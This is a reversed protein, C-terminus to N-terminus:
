RWWRMSSGAYKHKVMCGTQQEFPKVWEDQAYGEWVVMNLAGEGGAEASSAYGVVLALCCIKSKWRM